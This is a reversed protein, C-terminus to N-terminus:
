GGLPPKAGAADGFDDLEGEVRDLWRNIGVINAAFSNLREFKEDLEEDARIAAYREATRERVLGIALDLDLENARAEGVLEVWLRLEEESRDLVDEVHSVPGYHSFLLRQPRMAKFLRLSALAVDLDFDPPPTAPRLLDVEPVYIGAADGVYLDGTSEDFLAVHHKAHGPSYRVLLDRGNGLDVRAEDGVARVREGPTPLLPGFVEDMLPGYVRKASAMLVSPDVLHRAGLEHVVVEANPYAAAIDGVGGAHDLHIHTVVVTALDEPGLGHKDLAARVVPASKATGTEVLCPRDGLVLYGATIGSYGSMLTDITHVGGGLDTTVVNDV